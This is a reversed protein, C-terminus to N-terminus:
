LMASAFLNPSTRICRVPHLSLVRMRRNLSVIRACIRDYERASIVATTKARTITPQLVQLM